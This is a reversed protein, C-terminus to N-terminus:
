PSRCEKGVRREESRHVAGRPGVATILADEVLVVGDPIAAAQPSPLVRGGVLATVHASAAPTSVPAPGCAAALVAATALAAAGRIGRGRDRTSSITRCSPPCRSTPAM